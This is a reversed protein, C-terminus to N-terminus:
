CSHKEGLSLIICNLHKTNTSGVQDGLTDFQCLDEGLLLKCIYQLKASAALMVLDNLIM